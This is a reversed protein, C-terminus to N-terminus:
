KHHMTSLVVAISVMLINKIINGMLLEPVAHQDLNFQIMLKDTQNKKAM